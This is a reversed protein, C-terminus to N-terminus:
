ILNKDCLIAESKFQYFEDKIDELAKFEEHNYTAYDFSNLADSQSVEDPLGELRVSEISDGAIFYQYIQIAHDIDDAVVLGYYEHLNFEFYKQNNNM